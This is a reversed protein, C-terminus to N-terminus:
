GVQPVRGVIQSVEQGGAVYARMIAMAEDSKVLEAFLGSEMFLGDELTMDMGDYICQRVHHVALPPREALEKAFALTEPMLRDPDCARTVLGIREAEDGYVARGLLQLELAKARGILRPMRQTGGGGPLIGLNIELASARAARSMFRFDFALARELGGGGLDGNIAAIIPKSGPRFGPRRPPPATTPERRLREGREVLISVDFHQIFVGAMASTFVGVRLEPDEFFENELRAFEAGAEICWLNKPPNSYRWIVIPGDKEVEFYKNDEAM